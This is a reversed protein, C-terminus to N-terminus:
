LSIRWGLAASAYILCFSVYQTAVTMDEDLGMIKLSNRGITLNNTNFTGAGDAFGVVDGEVPAAPLTVTFAGGTTNCLYGNEKVAPAPDATILAWTLVAAGTGTHYLGNADLAMGGGAKLKIAEGDATSTLGGTSKNKIQLYGGSKELGGTTSLALALIDDAGMEFVDGLLAGGVRDM